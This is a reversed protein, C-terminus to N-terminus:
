AQGGAVETSPAVAMKVRVAKRAKVAAVGCERKVTAEMGKKFAVTVRPEGSPAYDYDALFRVRM